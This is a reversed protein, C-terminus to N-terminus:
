MMFRSMLGVRSRNRTQATFIESSDSDGQWLQYRIKCNREPVSLWRSEDRNGDLAGNVKLFAAIQRMSM